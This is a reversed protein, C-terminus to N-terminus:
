EVAHELITNSYLHFKAVLMLSAVAQEEAAVDSTSTWQSSAAALKTCCLMM